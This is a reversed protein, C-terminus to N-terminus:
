ILAPRNYACAACVQKCLPAEVIVAHVSQEDVDYGYGQKTYSVDKVTGVSLQCAQRALLTRQASYKVSHCSKYPEYRDLKCQYIAEVVVM